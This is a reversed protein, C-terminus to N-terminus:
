VTSTRTFSIIPVNVEPVPSLPASPVAIWVSRSQRVYGFRAFRKSIAQSGGSELSHQSENIRATEHVAFALQSKDNKL